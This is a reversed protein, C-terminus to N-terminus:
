VLDTSWGGATMARSLKGTFLLALNKEDRAQNILDYVTAEVSLSQTLKRKVVELARNAETADGAKEGAGEIGPTSASSALAPAPQQQQQQHNKGRRTTMSGLELTKAMTPNVTSFKREAPAEQIVSGNEEEAARRADQLRQMRAPSISWQYLPDYRLVDLISMIPETEARLAALTFECCRRFVGEVGTIGMGDVIDRTLRFPVLEPIPLVRGMEFAIGLDIHVVEGTKADLLINHGHRDGVGLVHGLMSIAATTRTYATRRVFWDDPDPYHELFFYRMTPTFRATVARFAKVRADVGLRDVDSIQKRCDSQRLDKPHYREHAPMLWEHLPITNPVFEILGATATLPLVKYTRITLRRQQTKRNLKLLASVQGFVQEMIADQRLDDNKSGKVLQKYRQGDTGIATVIKPASVGGAYSFTAELHAMRPVGSYDLDARVEIQMTPPPIQYKVVGAALIQFPKNQSFGVKHRRAKSDQPAPEAALDAYKTSTRDIATWTAATQGGARMLRRAVREMAQHRLVSVEDHKVVSARTGTWVQYMGHYPHDICTQVVLALLTKQFATDKNQLRSSLQNM